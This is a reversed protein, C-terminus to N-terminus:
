RQRPGEDDLVQGVGGARALARVEFRGAVVQGPQWSM